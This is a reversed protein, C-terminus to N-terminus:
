EEGVYDDVKMGDMKLRLKALAKQEIVSVLSRSIGLENAVEQATMAYECSAQARIDNGNRM